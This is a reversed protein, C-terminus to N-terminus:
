VPSALRLRGSTRPCCSPLPAARRPSRSVVHSSEGQLVLCHFQLEVGLRSRQCPEDCPLAAPADEVAGVEAHRKAQQQREGPAALIQHMALPLTRGADIDVVVPPAGGNAPVSDGGLVPTPVIDGDGEHNRERRPLGHEGHRDFVLRLERDFVDVAGVEPVHPPRRCVLPELGEAAAVRIGLLGRQPGGEFVEAAIPAEVIRHLEAGVAVVEAVTHAVDRSRRKEQQAARSLPQVDADARGFTLEDGPVALQQGPICAGDIGPHRLAQGDASGIHRGAERRDVHREHTRTLLPLESRNHQLGVPPGPVGPSINVLPPAVPPHSPRPDGGPDALRVGPVLHPHVRRLIVDPDAVRVEHSEALLARLLPHPCEVQDAPVPAALIAAVGVVVGSGPSPVTSSSLDAIAPM